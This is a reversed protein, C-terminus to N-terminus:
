PGLAHKELLTTVARAAGLSPPLSQFTVCLYILAVVPLLRLDFRRRLRAEAAEDIVAVARVGAGSLVVGPHAALM